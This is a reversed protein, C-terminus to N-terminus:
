LVLDAFFRAYASSIRWEEDYLGWMGNPNCELFVFDNGDISVFDFHGFVINARKMFTQLKTKINDDVQIFSFNQEMGLIRSDIINNPKDIRVVFISNGIVIIRYDYNGSIYEQVFVPSCLNHRLYHTLYEKKYLKSAPTFAEVVGQQRVIPLTNIGIGKVLLKASNKFHYDIASDDNTLLSRPTRMGISNALKLQFLKKQEFSRSSFPNYTINSYYNYLNTLTGHWEISTAKREAWETTFGFPHVFHKDSAWIAAPDIIESNIHLQHLDPDFSIPTHNEHDIVMYPVGMESFKTCVRLVQMQKLSGCVLLKRNM